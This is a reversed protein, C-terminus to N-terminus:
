PSKKLPLGHRRISRGVTWVSVSVGDDQALRDRHEALTADPCAAVQAALRGEQQPSLARPRGPIPKPDLSAGRRLLTRYRTLTRASVGLTRAIEADSLGADHARLLRERLDRSYPAPM